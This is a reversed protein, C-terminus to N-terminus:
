AARGKRADEIVDRLETAAKEIDDAMFLSSIVAVGDAGAEILSSANTADIGAIAGIPMGPARVRVIAAIRRWGDIGIAAPNDKSATEFVGGIFVHSLMEVPAARAEQDTKISFGIIASDGLLARADAPHMDEQGVHVGDAGSALAVDVRDNLILPVGTGALAAKVARAEDVMARTMGIKDRYQILTAGGAVAKRALEPLPRGRGRAPDLVGYLSIDAPKM